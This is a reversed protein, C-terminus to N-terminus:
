PSSTAEVHQEIFERGTVAANSLLGRVRTAAQMSIFLRGCRLSAGGCANPSSYSVPFAHAFSRLMLLGRHLRPVDSCGVKEVSSKCTHRSSIMCTHANRPEAAGSAVEANSQVKRHKKEHLVAGRVDQAQATSAVTATAVSDAPAALATDHVMGELAHLGPRFGFGAVQVRASVEGIWLQAFSPSASSDKPLASVYM